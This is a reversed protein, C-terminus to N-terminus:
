NKGYDNSSKIDSLVSELQEKAGGVLSYAWIDNGGSFQGLLEIAKELIEKDSM